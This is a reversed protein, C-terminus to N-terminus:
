SKRWLQWFPKKYGYLRNSTIIGTVAPAVLHEWPKREGILQRIDTCSAPIHLDLLQHYSPLKEPVSGPRSLILFRGHRWLDNGQDWGRIGDVNDAGIVHWVENLVVPVLRIALYEERWETKPNYTLQAQMEYTSTYGCDTYDLDHTNVEVDLGELGALLMEKRVAAPAVQQKTSYPGVPWVVIEIPVLPDAAILEAKLVLLKEVIERHHLAFPDFSGALLLTRKFLTLKSAGISKAVGALEM